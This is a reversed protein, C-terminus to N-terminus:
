DSPNDLQRKTSVSLVDGLEPLTHELLDEVAERPTAGSGTIKDLDYDDVCAQWRDHPHAYDVQWVTIKIM